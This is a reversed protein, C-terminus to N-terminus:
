GLGLRRTIEAAVQQPTIEDVDVVIHALEAFSQERVSAM